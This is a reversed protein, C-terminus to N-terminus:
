RMTIRHFNKRQTDALDKEFFHFVGQIHNQPAKKIGVEARHDLPLPVRLLHNCVLIALNAPEASILSALESRNM